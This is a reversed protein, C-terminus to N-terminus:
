SFPFLYSSSFKSKVPQSDFFDIEMKEVGELEGEPIADLVAKRDQLVCRGLGLGGAKEIELKIQTLSQGRGGAVDVISVREEGEGEVGERYDGGGAEVLVGGDAVVGPRLLDAFPFMGLVPLANEQTTM